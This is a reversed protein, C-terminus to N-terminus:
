SGLFLVVLVANVACLVAAPVMVRPRDHIRLRTVLGMIMLLTLGAAGVAGVRAFALGLLLSAGGLIELTGVLIRAAPPMGYRNFEDRMQPQRFIRYGYRLFSLGSILALVVLVM